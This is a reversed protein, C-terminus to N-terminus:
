PRASKIVDDYHAVVIASYRWEPLMTLADSKVTRKMIDSVIMAVPMGSVYCKLAIARDALSAANHLNKIDYKNFFSYDALLKKRVSDDYILTAVRSAVEAVLDPTAQADVGRMEILGRAFNRMAPRSFLFGGINNFNKESLRGQDMLDKMTQPSGDILCEAKHLQSNEPDPLFPVEVQLLRDVIHEIAQRSNQSHWVNVVPAMHAQPLRCMSIHPRASNAYYLTFIPEILLLAQFFEHFQDAGSDLTVQTSCVADLGERVRLADEGFRKTFYERWLVSRSGYSGQTSKIYHPLHGRFIPVFKLLAAVECIADYFEQNKEHVDDGNKSVSAAFEIQNGIETTVVGLGKVELESITIEGTLTESYALAAEYGKFNFVRKLEHFV